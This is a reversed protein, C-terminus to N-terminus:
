TNRQTEICFRHIRSLMKQVIAGWAVDQEDILGGAKDLEGGFFHCSMLLSLILFSSFSLLFHRGWYM